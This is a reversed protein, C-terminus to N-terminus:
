EDSSILFLSSFMHVQFYPRLAHSFSAKPFTYIHSGTTADYFSVLGADCDLVIGVVEPQSSLTLPTAYSSLALGMKNKKLKIIWFGSGPMSTDRPVNELCFGVSWEIGERVEVEFYHRGATFRERGLVCPLATFGGATQPKPFFRFFDKGVNCVRRQNDSVDLGPHATDPDLTVKVQFHKLMKKVTFNLESVNCVTHLELSVDEPTELNITSVRNLTVKIDQLLNQASGQCKKDLELIGNKLEQLKNDLHAVSDQLRSLKQEKEKELRCMYFEEQNLFKHLSKFESHIREKEHKTKERYGQCADEVPATVHGKHEPSQECSRCILQGDDECFVHLQEGHKECVSQHISPSSGM